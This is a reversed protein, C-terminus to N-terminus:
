KKTEDIPKWTGYDVMQVIITKNNAEVKNVADRLKAVRETEERFERDHCPLLWLAPGAMMGSDKHLAGTWLKGGIIEKAFQYTEAFSPWKECWELVVERTIGRDHFFKSLKIAEPTRIWQLLAVGLQEIKQNTMWMQEHSLHNFYILGNKNPDQIHKIKTGAMDKRGYIRGDLSSAECLETNHQNTKCANVM